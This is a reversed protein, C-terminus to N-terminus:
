NYVEEFRSLPLAFVTKTGRDVGFFTGRAVAIKELNEFPYVASHDGVVAGTAPDIEVLRPASTQAVLLRNGFSVIDVPKQNMSFTAAPQLTQSVRVSRPDYKYIKRSNDHTTYVFGEIDMDSGYVEMAEGMYISQAIRPVNCYNSALIDENLYFNLRKKDRVIVRDGKAIVEMGHVIQTTGDGWAGNGIATVFSFDSTDFVDVRSKVNVVYLKGNGVAIGKPQGIFTQTEDKFTWSQLSHLHTLTGAEEAFVEVSWANDADNLVYVRNQDACVDKPRFTEATAGPVDEYSLVFELPTGKRVDEIRESDFRIDLGGDIADLEPDEIVYRSNAYKAAGYLKGNKRTHMFRRSYVPLEKSICMETYITNCLDNFGLKGPVSEYTMNGSHGYGICHGYEHFFTHPDAQDDAYHGLYQWEAIGFTNGGGLGNVGSVHGFNLRGNNRMLRPWLESHPIEQTGANDRYYEREAFAEKFKDSSFMYGMNMAFAIAERCHAPLIKYAWSGEQSYKGFDVKLNYPMTTVKVWFPDDCEVSLTLDSASLYPNHMIQIDKGSRTKYFVDKKVAPLEHHFETFPPIEEFVALMFEEEYGSIKAWVKLNSVKRPSFFRFHLDQEQISIQLPQNANMGRLTTNYLIEDPEDDALLPSSNESTYGNAKIRILGSPDGQEGNMTGVDVRDQNAESFIQDQCSYLLTSLVLSGILRRSIM